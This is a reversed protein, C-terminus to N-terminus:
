LVVAELHAKGYNKNKKRAFQPDIEAFKAELKSLLKM